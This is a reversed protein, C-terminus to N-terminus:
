INYIQNWKNIEPNNNLWPHEYYACKAYHCEDYSNFPIIAYVNRNLPRGYEDEEHPHRRIYDVWQQPISNTSVGHITIYRTTYQDLDRNYYAVNIINYGNYDTGSVMTSACGNELGLIINCFEPNRKCEGDALYEPFTDPFLHYGRVYYDAMEDYTCVIRLPVPIILHPDINYPSTSGPTYHYYQDSLDEGTSYKWKIWGRHDDVPELYLGTVEVYSPLGPIPVTLGLYFHLNLLDKYMAYDDNGTFSEGNYREGTTAYGQLIYGHNNDLGFGAPAYGISTYDNPSRKYLYQIPNRIENYYKTIDYSNGQSAYYNLISHRNITLSNIEKVGSM